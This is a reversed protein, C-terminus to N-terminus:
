CAGTPRLTPTTSSTSSSSMSTARLEHALSPEGTANTLLTTDLVPTLPRRLRGPAGTPLREWLAHLVRGDPEDGQRGLRRVIEAVLRSGAVSQQEEPLDLIVRAVVAALHRSLRDAAEGDALDAIEPILETGALQGSLEVTVLQEWLGAALGGSNVPGEGAGPMRRLTGSLDAANLTFNSRQDARRGTTSSTGPPGDKQACTATAKQLAGLAQRAVEGFGTASPAAM